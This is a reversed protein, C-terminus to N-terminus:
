CQRARLQHACLAHWVDAVGSSLLAKDPNVISDLYGMAAQIAVDKNCMAPDYAATQDLLAIAAPLQFALIYVITATPVNATCGVLPNGFHLLTSVMGGLQGAPVITTAATNSEFLPGCPDFTLGAPAQAGDDDDGDTHTGDNHYDFHKWLWSNMLDVGTVFGDAGAASM